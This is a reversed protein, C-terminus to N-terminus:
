EEENELQYIVDLIGRNYEYEMFYKGVIAKTKETLELEDRGIEKILKQDLMFKKVITMFGMRSVTKATQKRVGEKINDMAEWKKLIGIWNYENEQELSILTEEDVQNLSDMRKNMSDLWDNITIFDRTSNASQYSDYFEGIFIIIAVYMLYIDMNLTKAPFYIRKIDSNTIHYISNKTLPVLYIYYAATVVTCDVENAFEMVLSRVIEDTFFKNCDTKLVEGEANLKSFIKFAQTILEHNIM